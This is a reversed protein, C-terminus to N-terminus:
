SSKDGNDYIRLFTGGLLWAGLLSHIIACLEWHLTLLDFGFAMEDEPVVLGSSHAVCFGFVLCHIACSMTELPALLDLDCIIDGCIRLPTGQLAWLSLTWTLTEFAM